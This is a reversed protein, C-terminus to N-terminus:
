TGLSRFLREMGAPWLRNGLVIWRGLASPIIRAKGQEMAAVTRRAVCQASAGKVGPALQRESRLQHREFDTSTRGPDVELLHVSSSRLERRLCASFGRLAFKSACYASRDPLGFYGLISGIIVVIPTKGQVLLPLSDRLLDVIAFFNVEM